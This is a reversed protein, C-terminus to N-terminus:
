LYFHLFGLGLTLDNYVNELLWFKWANESGKLSNEAIRNPFRSKSIIEEIREPSTKRDNAFNSQAAPAQSNFQSIMIVNQM